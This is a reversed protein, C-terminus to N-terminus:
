VRRLDGRPPDARGRRGLEARDEAAPPALAVLVDEEPAVAVQARPARVVGGAARRRHEGRETRVLHTGHGTALGAFPQTEVAIRRGAVHDPHVPRGVPEGTALFREVSVPCAVALRCLGSIYRRPPPGPPYSPPGRLVRVRTRSAALGTPGGM